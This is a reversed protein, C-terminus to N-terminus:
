EFSGSKNVYGKYADTGDEVEESKRITEKRQKEKLDEELATIIKSALKIIMVGEKESLSIKAM